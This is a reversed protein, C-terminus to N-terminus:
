SAYESAEMVASQRTVCTTSMRLPTWQMTALDINALFGYDGSDDTRGGTEEGKRPSPPTLDRSRMLSRDIWHARRVDGM